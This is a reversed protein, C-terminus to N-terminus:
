RRRRLTALGGLVLLALSAPEPVVALSGADYVVDAFVGTPPPEVAFGETLDAPNDDSLTLGTSGLSLGQILVTALVVDDGWIGVGPPTPALGALADGDIALAPDFAPGIVPPGVLGAISLSDISLDLGWGIVADEMPIDAVIEVPVIGGLPITNGLPYNFGVVINTVPDAAVPAVVSVIVALAACLVLSKRNM